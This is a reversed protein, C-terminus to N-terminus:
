AVRPPKQIAAILADALAEIGAHSRAFAYDKLEPRRAQLEEPTMDHLVLFLRKRVLASLEEETWRRGFFQKSVIVVGFLSARTGFEITQVLNDGVTVELEDYWVRQGRAALANALPRAVTEKDLSVHSIFFDWRGDSIWHARGEHLIVAFEGQPGAADFHEWEPWETRDPQNVLDMAVGAQRLADVREAEVLVRKFVVHELTAETLSANRFDCNYVHTFRLTCRELDADGLDSHRIKLEYAIAGQLNCGRLCVHKLDTGKLEVGQLDANRFTTRSADVGNLRARAFRAGRFDVNSFSAGNFDTDALDAGRYTAHQLKIHTLDQKGPTAARYENWAAVGRVLHRLAESDAM